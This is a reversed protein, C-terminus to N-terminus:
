GGLVRLIDDAGIETAPHRDAMVSVSPPDKFGHGTLICIATGSRLRGEEAAILAGAVATAGAPEVFLGEETALRGQVHRIFDEDAVLGTGGTRRAHDMAVDGDLVHGVGLGSITTITEVSRARNAGNLLPTAVTDNGMPQVVHMAPSATGALDAYGRSIAVHLGAGGVPVFIDTAEPVEEALEYAITKIGEMDRPAKAYATTHLSLGMAAVRAELIDMARASEAADVSMGRVRYLTAGYAQMQQLKGAPARESVFLICGLGARACFAALAAGTNGSSTAICRDAGEAVARGVALGAFRDKYSGTPNLHELKFRLDAIGAKPGISRSAVVPTFGQGMDIGDDRCLLDRYRAYLGKGM